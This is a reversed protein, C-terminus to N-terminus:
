PMDDVSRGVVFELLPYIQRVLSVESVGLLVEQSRSAWFAKITRYRWCTMAGAQPICNQLIDLLLLRAQPM